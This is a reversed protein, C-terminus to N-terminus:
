ARLDNGYGGPIEIAVWYAAIAHDILLSVTSSTWTATSDSSSWSTTTTHTESTTGGYKLYCTISPAGFYNDDGYVKVQTITAGDPITDLAVNVTASGSAGSAASFFRSSTGSGVEYAYAETDDKSDGPATVIRFVQYDAWATPPMATLTFLTLGLGFAHRM